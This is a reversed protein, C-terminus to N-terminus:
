QPRFSKMTAEVEWFARLAELDGNEDAKYTFVGEAESIHGGIRTVITGIYAVERGCIIEKEFQFDISETPAIAKDWFASLGDAGRHGRGEEDFMSPGVPDEVSGNAAFNALWAAKDRAEVAERSRRGALVAPHNARDINLYAPSNQTDTM